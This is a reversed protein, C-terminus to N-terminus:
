GNRYRFVSNIYEIYVDPAREFDYGSFLPYGDLPSEWKPLKEDRPTVEYRWRSKLQLLKDLNAGAIADVAKVIAPDDFKDKHKVLRPTDLDRAERCALALKDKDTIADFWKDYAAQLVDKVKKIKPNERKFKEIRNEPLCIITFEKVASHLLSAQYTGARLNGHVWYVPKSQDIEDGPIGSKSRFIDSDKVAIVVDFSGPIRDSPTRAKKPLKVANVDTWSVIRKPDIWQAVDGLPFNVLVYNSVPLDSLKNSFEMLKKKHTPTFKMLDYDTVFLAKDVYGVDIGRMENAASLRYSSNATMLIRPVFSGVPAPRSLQTPIDKGRFRFARAGRNNGLVASWKNYERVAAQPTAAQEIQEQVAAVLAAKFAVKIKDIVKLTKPSYTLAERSPAIEVTGIPVEAVLSYGYPVGLEYHGLKNTAYAVGGMVVRSENGRHENLLRLTFEQGDVGIRAVVMGGIHKAPEGNILVCGEDWYSFFEHATTAFNQSDGSKVPVQVEVGNRADTAATDVILMNGAGDEDITVVVTARVGDKIAITTFQSTYTLPAKSGVGMFGTQENTTRKTSAGYKSYLEHINEVSLGVGHDRITIYPSLPSPLIVEIPDTVGAEVHSDWANNALERIVALIPDSYLNVLLSMLHKEAGEAFGMVARDGTLNGTVVNASKTPIM